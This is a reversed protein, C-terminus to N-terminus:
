NYSVRSSVFHHPFYFFYHNGPNHAPPVYISYFIRSTTFSQIINYHLICTNYMKMILLIHLVLFSTYVISKPHCYRTSTPENIIVFKDSQQPINIPPSHAYMLPHYTPFRQVNLEIRQSGLFARIDLTHPNKKVISYTAIFTVVNIFRTFKISLLLLSKCFVM